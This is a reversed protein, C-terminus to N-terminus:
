PRQRSTRSRRIVLMADGYSYFRYKMKVAHRYASFVNELGTFAAVLALLSSRPLHFNTVIADVAKFRHGPRIFLSTQGSMARLKGNEFATELARVTTTGVAIVRGGGKVASNIRRANAADVSFTERELCAQELTDTKLPRFTGPGTHLTVFAQRIGSSELRKILQQSFHLGATPAAVAGPTRAYVTQYRRRDMAAVAPDRDRKIYPPLPAFGIRALVQPAQEATELELACTGDANKDTLTAAVPKAAPSGAALLEVTEGAALKRSGKLMVLWSGPKKECLFLGEFRGGSKRRGFFRAPLVLTDNLVLCDGANLFNGIRSFRSDTIEGTRRDLVLLRSDTRRCSPRQAILLRPLNYDLLKTRM